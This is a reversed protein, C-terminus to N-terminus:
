IEEQRKRAAESAAAEDTISENLRRREEEAKIAEDRARKKLDLDSSAAQRRAELEALVERRKRMDSLQNQLVEDHGLDSLRELDEKLQTIDSNMM